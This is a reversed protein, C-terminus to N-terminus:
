LRENEGRKKKKEETHCPQEHQAKSTIRKTLLFLLLSHHKATLTRVPRLWLPRHSQVPPLQHGGLAGCPGRKGPFQFSVFVVNFSFHTDM